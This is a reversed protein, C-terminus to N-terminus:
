ADVSCDFSAFEKNKNVNYKIFFSYSKEVVIKLYIYYNGLRIDEDNCGYATISAIYSEDTNEIEFTSQTMNITHTNSNLNNLNGHFIKDKSWVILKENTLTFDECCRLENM